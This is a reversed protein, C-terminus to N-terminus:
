YFSKLKFLQYFLVVGSTVIAVLQWYLVTGTSFGQNVMVYHFASICIVSVILSLKMWIVIRKYNGKEINARWLNLSFYLTNFLSIFILSFKIYLEAQFISKHYLEFSSYIFYLMFYLNLIIIIVNWSKNINIAKM